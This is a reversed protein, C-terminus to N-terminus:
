QVSTDDNDGEKMPILSGDLVADLFQGLLVAVSYPRIDHADALDLVADIQENTLNVKTAFPRQRFSWVHENKRGEPRNDIYNGHFLSALPIRTSLKGTKYNRGIRQKDLALRGQTSLGVHTSKM